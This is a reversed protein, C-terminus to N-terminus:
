DVVRGLFPVGVSDRERERETEGERERHRQRERERERELRLVDDSSMSHGHSSYVSGVFLVAYLNSRCVSVHNASLGISQLFGHKQLATQNTDKIIKTCLATSPTLIGGGGM